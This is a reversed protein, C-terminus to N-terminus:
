IAIAPVARRVDGLGVTSAGVAYINIAANEDKDNSTPQSNKKIFIFVKGEM